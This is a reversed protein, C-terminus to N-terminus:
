AANRARKIRLMSKLAMSRVRAEEDKIMNQLLAHFRWDETQGMVWAATIRRGVTEDAAM